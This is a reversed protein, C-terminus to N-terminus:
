VFNAGDIKINEGSIFSNQFVLFYVLDGVEEVTGSRGLRVMKARGAMQESSRKMVSYHFKTDILGPSICNTLINYSTFHKALHKTLYGVSHKAMGYGFSDLGGGHESSATNMLLIRGFGREKMGNIIAKVIIVTSFINVSHHYFLSDYSQSELYDSEKSNGHLQIFHSIPRGALLKVVVELSVPNSADMVLEEVGYDFVPDGERSRTIIVSHKTEQRIKKVVERGIDGCAGTILVLSKDM